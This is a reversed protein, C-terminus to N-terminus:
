PALSAEPWVEARMRPYFFAGIHEDSDEGHLPKPGYPTPFGSGTSPGVMIQYNVPDVFLADAKGDGNLDAYAPETGDEAWPECAVRLGRRRGMPTVTHDPRRKGEMAGQGAQAFFAEALDPRTM